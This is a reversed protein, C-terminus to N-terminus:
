SINCGFSRLLANIIERKFEDQKLKISAATNHGGAADVYSYGSKIENVTVLLNAKEAIPDSVRVSVFHGFHLVLIAPKENVKEIRELLKSAYRGPLPYKTMTDKRVNEFDLLYVQSLAGKYQRISELGSDIAEEIRTKAYRILEDRRAEDGMIMGIDYPTIDGSASPGAIRRDSTLMDLLLAFDKAREDDQAYASYDGILSAAEALYLDVDAFTKGFECTLVGATYNSNGGFMWPNIYNDLMGALQELVPHHDLWIIDFKDKALVTGDISADTTGFDTILLLPRTISDYNGITLMDEKADSSSYAVGRHMKWQIKSFGTVAIRRSLQELCLYLGYAGTAGDADNHFRVVIPAGLLLKEILLKAASELKGQMNATASGIEDHISKKRQALLSPIHKRIKILHDPFSADGIVASEIREGLLQAEIRDGLNLVIASKLENIKPIGEEISSIYYTNESMSAAHKVCSVIGKLM